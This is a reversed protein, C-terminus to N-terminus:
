GVCDLEFVEFMELVPSPVFEPPLEDEEEDEFLLAAPFAAKKM